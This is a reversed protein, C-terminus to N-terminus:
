QNKVIEAKQILESIYDDYKQSVIESKIMEESLENNGEYYDHIEDETPKLDKKALINKLELEGTSIYYTYFQEIDISNIGVKKESSEKNKRNFEEAQKKLGEFSIDDYIGNDRMLVLVIKSRVAEEFAKEELEQSPTKGDFETNWFESFDSINYKSVYEQLVEAKRRQSFYDIEEPTIKEGNVYAYIDESGGEKNACACCLLLLFIILSLYITKKM